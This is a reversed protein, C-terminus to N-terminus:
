VLGDDYIFKDRKGQEFASEHNQAAIQTPQARFPCSWMLRASHLQIRPIDENFWNVSINSNKM